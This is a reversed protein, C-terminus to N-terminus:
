SAIKNLQKYWNAMQEFIKVPNEGFEVFLPLKILRGYIDTIHIKSITKNGVTLSDYVFIRNDKTNRIDNLYRKVADAQVSTLETKLKRLAENEIFQGKFNTNRNQIKDIQM